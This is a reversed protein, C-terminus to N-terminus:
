RPTSGSCTTVLTCVRRHVMRAIPLIAILVGGSALYPLTHSLFTEEQRSGAADDDGVLSTDWTEDGTSPATFVGARPGQRQDIAVLGTPPPQWSTIVPGVIAPAVKRPGCGTRISIPLTSL